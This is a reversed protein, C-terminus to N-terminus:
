CTASRVGVAHTALCVEPLSYVSCRAEDVTHKAMRMRVFAVEASVNESNPQQQEPSMSTEKRLHPTQSPHHSRLPPAIQRHRDSDRLIQKFVLPPVKSPM